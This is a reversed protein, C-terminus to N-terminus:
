SDITVFFISFQQLQFEFVIVGHITYDYNILKVTIYHIKMFIFLFIVEVISIIGRNVFM